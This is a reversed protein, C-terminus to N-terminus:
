RIHYGIDCLAVIDTYCLFVFICAWKSVFLMKPWASHAQPEKASKEQHCSFLKKNEKQLTIKYRELTSLVALDISQSKRHCFFFRYLFTPFGIALFCFFTYVILCLHFIRKRRKSSWYNSCLISPMRLVCLLERNKPHIHSDYRRASTLRHAHRIDARYM